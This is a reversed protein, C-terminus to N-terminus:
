LKKRKRCWRFFLRNSDISNPLIANNVLKDAFISACFFAVSFAKSTHGTFIFLNDHYEIEETSLKKGNIIQPYKNITSKSDIIRGVIPFHDISTSRLGGKQAVVSFDGLNVMNRAIDLLEETAQSTIELPIQSRVYTAGIAFRGNKGASILADGSINSEFVKRGEVEIKQGWLGIISDKIYEEDILESIAGTSFIISKAELGGVKYFDDVKVINEIKTNEFLNCKSIMKQCFVKPEVVGAEKCLYAGFKGAELTLFDLTVPEFYKYSLPIYKQLELFEEISKECKPLLYTGCQWFIDPFHNKFYKVSFLFAEDSLTKLNSPKGMTPNIFAGAAGSAKSCISDQEFLAVNKGSMSLFYAISCGAVGGGVVAFDYV